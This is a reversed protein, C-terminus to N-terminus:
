ARGLTYAAQLYAQHAQEETTYYGLSKKKGNLSIIAKWKKTQKKPQYYAGKMSTTKKPSPTEKKIGKFLVNDPSLNLQNKDKFVARSASKREPMLRYLRVTSEKFVANVHNEEDIELKLFSPNNLLSEILGHSVQVQKDNVNLTSITM